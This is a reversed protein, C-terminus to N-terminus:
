SRKRNSLLMWVAKKKNENEEWLEPRSHQNECCSVPSFITSDALRHSDCKELRKQQGEEEETVEQVELGAEGYM